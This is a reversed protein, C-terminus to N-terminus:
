RAVVKMLKLVDAGFNVNQQKAQEYDIIMKPKGSLLAFGLVVGEGVFEPLAAVSLVDIGTLAGRIRELEPELGPTVYVVAVRDDRCRKALAPANTYPVVSEAHPLGGFRDLESLAGKFVAAFADSRTNGPKVLIVVRVLEGARAAFSRDHLSLKSLLEVELEAPVVAGEAAASRDACLGWILM